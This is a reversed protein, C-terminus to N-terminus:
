NRVHKTGNGNYYKQQMKLLQKIYNSQMLNEKDKMSQQQKTNTRRHLNQSSNTMTTAAWTNVASNVRGHKKKKITNQTSTTGSLPTIDQVVAKSSSKQSYTPLNAKGVIKVSIRTEVKETSQSGNSMHSTCTQTPM